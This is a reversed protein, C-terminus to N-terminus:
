PRLFVSRVVNQPHGAMANGNSEGVTITFIHNPFKHGNILLPQSWTESYEINYVTKFLYFKFVPSSQSIHCQNNIDNVDNVHIVTLNVSVTVSLGHFIIPLVVHLM